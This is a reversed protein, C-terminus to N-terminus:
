SAGDDAAAAAPPPEDGLLVLVYQGCSSCISGLVGFLVALVASRAALVGCALGAMALCAMARRAFNAEMDKKEDDTWSAYATDSRVMTVCSLCLIVPCVTGLVVYAWATIRGGLAAVDLLASAMATSAKAAAAAATQRSPRQAARRPATEGTVQKYPVMKKVSM